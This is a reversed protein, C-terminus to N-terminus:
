NENFLLELTLKDIMKIIDEQNGQIVLCNNKYYFKSDESKKILIVKVNKDADSCNKLPLNVCDESDKYCVVVIKPILFPFINNQLNGLFLNDKPNTSLYIKQASNLEDLDVKIEYNELENPNNSLIIKNNNYYTLWGNNIKNFKYRNYKVKESDSSSMFGLISTIMIFCIIIPLLIKKGKSKKPKKLYMM